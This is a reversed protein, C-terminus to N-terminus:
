SRIFRSHATVMVLVPLLARSGDELPIKQPPFWLDCQAADGPAWSLRDAPDVRRHEPRLRRVNDRFWSMSGQSGVREALVTAPMDPCEVLLQRVRAELATFATPQAARQYKPPRQSAVARDVTARGIGLDRAVQRRPVGEAVLRRILAWDEVSIVWGIQRAAVGFFPPRM